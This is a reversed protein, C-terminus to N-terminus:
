WGWGFQLLEHAVGVGEWFERIAGDVEALGVRGLRIPVAVVASRGFVAHVDKAVPKEPVGDLDRGADVVPRVIVALEIQGGFVADLGDDGLHDRRRRLPGEAFIGVGAELRAVALLDFAVDAAAAADAAEGAEAEVVVVGLGRCLAKQAFQDGAVLIVGAQAAVVDPVLAVDAHVDAVAGARGGLEPDPKLLFVAIQARQALGPVAVAEGFPVVDRRRAVQALM